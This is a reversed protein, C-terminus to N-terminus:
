ARSVSSLSNASSGSGNRDGCCSLLQNYICNTMIVFYYSSHYRRSRDTFSGVFEWSMKAMM